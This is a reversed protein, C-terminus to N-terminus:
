LRTERPRTRRIFNLVEKMTPHVGSPDSLYCGATANGLLLQEDPELGNFVGMLFGSNWTDGSGTAIVPRIEFAPGYYETEGEIMMAFKPTHMCVKLNNWKEGLLKTAEIALEELNEKERRDSFSKDYYSAFLIAENENLAIIDLLQSEIVKSVLGPIAGVASTPDSTDLFTITKNNRALEFTKVALDNGKLNQAWNLVAVIDGEEIAERGEPSVKAFDFKQVSGSDPIMVNILREGGLFELAVTTSIEGRNSVLSLDVGVPELLQKMIGEGVSDTEAIVKVKAGLKALASAANGANGGRLIRQRTGLITGGGRKTVAEIESLIESLGIEFRVLHDVFLDPMLIVKPKKYYGEFKACISELRANVIKSTEASLWPSPEVSDGRLAGPHIRRLAGRHLKHPKPLPGRNQPM